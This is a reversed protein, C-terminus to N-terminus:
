LRILKLRHIKLLQKIIILQKLLKQRRKLQAKPQVNEPQEATTAAKDDKAPQGAVVTQKNENQSKAVLPIKITDAHVAQNTTAFMGLLTAASIFTLLSDKKSISM